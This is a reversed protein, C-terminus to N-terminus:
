RQYLVQVLHESSYLQAIVIHFVVNLPCAMLDMVIHLNQFQFIGFQVIRAFLSDIGVAAFGHEQGIDAMLHIRRQVANETIATQQAFGPQITQLLLMQVGHLAGGLTQFRNNRINEVNGCYLGTLQM